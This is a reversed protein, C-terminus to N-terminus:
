PNLYPDKAIAVYAALSSASSNIEWDREKKVDFWVFAKILPFDNKLTPIMDTIWQAKSGGVEDSAMEGIIIPKGKAALLPYIDKFVNQFSQWVFDSTSTGWNYGDVGTWDVYSDGPYYAMTMSNGGNTDTVNPCWAWIVNTAGGAVFLDHIHKYAAVYLTANNGSWAEDGNMEAAFDLFFKKGLTKSGAARAKITSDLSGSVIDNFDINDPEWNVLPIRGAAFDAPPVSDNTWDEDWGYYTLHIAPRRGIRAETAAITGDGYYEGLLAGQAPALIATSGADGAVATGDPAGTDAGSNGGSSSGSSSGVPLSSSDGDGAGSDLAVSAEDFSTGQGSTSDAGSGAPAGSSSGSAAGSSGLGTGPSGTGSCGVPGVFCVSSAAFALAISLSYSASM